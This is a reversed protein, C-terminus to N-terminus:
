SIAVTGGDGSPAIALTFARDCARCTVEITMRDLEVSTVGLGCGDLGRGCAPCRRGEVDPRVLQLVLGAAHEPPTASM